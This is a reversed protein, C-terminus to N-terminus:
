STHKLKNKILMKERKLVDILLNRLFNHIGTIKKFMGSNIIISNKVKNASVFRVGNSKESPSDSNTEPNLTSYPAPPNARIKIDSYPIIKPRLISILIIILEGVEKKVIIKIIVNPNM